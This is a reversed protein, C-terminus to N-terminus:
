IEIKYDAFTVFGPGCNIRTAINIPHEWSKEDDEDLGCWMDWEDRKNARVVYCHGSNNRSLFYRLENDNM